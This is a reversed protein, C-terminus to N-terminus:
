SKQHDIQYMGHAIFAADQSKLSSSIFAIFLVSTLLKM